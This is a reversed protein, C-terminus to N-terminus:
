IVVEHCFERMNGKSMSTREWSKQDYFFACNITGEHGPRDPFRIRFKEHAEEWSSAYVEVWGRCYPYEPDTGFTYYYPNLESMKEACKSCLDDEVWYCGGECAHYWTCGCVRCAQESEDDESDFGQVMAWENLPLPDKGAADLLAEEMGCSNCIYVNVRRSLANRVPNRDMRDYGCRPCPFVYNSTNDEQLKMLSEILTKAEEITRTM